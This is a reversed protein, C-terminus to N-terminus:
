PSSWYSVEVLVLLLGGGLALGTTACKKYAVSSLGMWADMGIHESTTLLTYIDWPISQPMSQPVSQPMSQPTSQPTPTSVKLTMFPARQPLLPTYLDVGAGFSLVFGALTHAPVSNVTYVRVVTTPLRGVALDTQTVMDATSGAGLSVVTDGAASNAWPSWIQQLASIAGVTPISLGLTSHTLPKGM